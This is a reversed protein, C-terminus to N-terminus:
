FDVTAPYKIKSILLEKNLPTKYSFSTTEHNYPLQKKEIM